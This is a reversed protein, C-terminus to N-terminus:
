ELNREGFKLDSRVPSYHFVPTCQIVGNNGKRQVVCFTGAMCLFGLYLLISLVLERVRTKSEYSWNQIRSMEVLLVLRSGDKLLDYSGISEKSPFKLKNIRM